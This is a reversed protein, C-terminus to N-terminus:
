LHVAATLELRRRRPDSYSSYGEQAGVVTAPQRDLLDQLGLRLELTRPRRGVPVLGFRYAAYLDMTFQSGIMTAGQRLSGIDDAIISVPSVSYSGYYQGSM